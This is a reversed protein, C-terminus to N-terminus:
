RVGAGEWEGLVLPERVYQYQRLSWKMSSYLVYRVTYVAHESHCQFESKISFIVTSCYVIGNGLLPVITYCHVLLVSM